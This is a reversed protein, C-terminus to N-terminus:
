PSRPRNFHSRRVGIMADLDRWADGTASWPDGPMTNCHLIDDDPVFPQPAAGVLDGGLVAEVQHVDVCGQGIVVVMLGLYVTCNTFLLVEDRREHLMHRGLQGHLTHDGCM